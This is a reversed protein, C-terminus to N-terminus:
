LERRYKLEEAEDKLKQLDRFAQHTEESMNDFIRDMEACARSILEMECDPCRGVSEGHICVSTGDVPM